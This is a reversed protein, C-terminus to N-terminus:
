TAAAFVLSGNHGGFGFSNSLVVPVSLPRAEGKVVDLHIAPDVTTLGVTPPIVGRAITLLSAVAELAGAGGLSHGTVGKCSTM